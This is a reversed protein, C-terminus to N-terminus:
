GLKNKKLISNVFAAARSPGRRGCHFKRNEDTFTREGGIPDNTREGRTEVAAQHRASGRYNIAAVLTM